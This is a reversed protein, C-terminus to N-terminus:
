KVITGTPPVAEALKVRTTYRQPNAAFATRTEPSSFLYTRAQYTVGYRRQGAIQKGTDCALVPDDGSLAPAYRDPNTLFAQQQEPGAFLYTRGRHRAGWQARGEIWQGKEALSVACYGELGLPMSGYPDPTTAAVVGEPKGTAATAKPDTADKPKSFMTFPKKLAAFFSDTASKKDPKPQAATASSTTAPPAAAQPAATASATQPAAGNLWPAAGTSPAPDLLKRQADGAPAAATDYASPKAPEAQWAPPAPPLSPEAAVTTDSEATAFATPAPAVPPQAIGAPTPAVSATPGVAAASRSFDSQERPMAALATEVPRAQTAEQMARAAAAVFAAPEAPCEFRTILKGDADVVCAAPINSVGLSRTLVPDADVDVNVPEYCATILAAAEPAALTTRQVAKSAESWSATFIILVPRKSMLSAAQAQAIDRHWPVSTATQIAGGSEAASALAPLSGLGVCLALCVPAGAILLPRRAPQNHDHLTFFM